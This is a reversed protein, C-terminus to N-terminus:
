RCICMLSLCPAFRSSHTSCDRSRHYVLSAVTPPCEVIIRNQAPSKALLSVYRIFQIADGFGQETYLLLSRGGLASGDWFTEQCRYRSYTKLRGAGSM